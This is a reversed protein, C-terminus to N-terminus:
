IVQRIVPNITSYRGRSSSLTQLNAALLKRDYFELSRFVGGNGLVIDAGATAGASSTVAGANISKLVSNADYTVATKQATSATAAFTVSGSTLLTKGIVVTADVVFTGQASAGQGAATAVDANRTLATTTTPIYSTAFAGAEIQAGWILVDGNAAGLLAGCGVTTAGMTRSVTLRQWSSTPAISASSIAGSAGDRLGISFTTAAGTAPAKVYISLTYTTNASAGVLQRINNGNYVIDTAGTLLDATTTGDPASSQNITVGATGHKTWITNFDASQLLLNARTEELLLGKCAGGTNLTYDFRPIDANVSEILGSSNIRTATNLARSFTTLRGDFIANTFDVVLKPLAPQGVIPSFSSTFM